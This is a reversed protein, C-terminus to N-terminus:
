QLDPPVLPFKQACEPCAKVTLASIRNAGQGKAALIQYGCACLGAQARSTLKAVFFAPTRTILTHIVLCTPFLVPIAIVAYGGFVVYAAAFVWMGLSAYKERGDSAIAGLREFRAKLEQPDMAGAHCAACRVSERLAKDASHFSIKSRTIHFDDWTADKLGLRRSLGFGFDQWWEPYLM